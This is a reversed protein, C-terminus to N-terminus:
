EDESVEFMQTLRVVSDPDLRTMQAQRFKGQVM